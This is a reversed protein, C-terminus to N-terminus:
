MIEDEYTLIEYSTSNYNSQETHLKCTGSSLDSIKSGSYQQRLSLKSSSAATSSVSMLAQNPGLPV